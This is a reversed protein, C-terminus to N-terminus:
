IRSKNQKALSITSAAQAADCSEAGPNILGYDWNVGM